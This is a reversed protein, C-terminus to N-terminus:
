IRLGALRRAAEEVRELPPTLAIRVYPLGPNITAARGDRVVECEESIIRGPTVVIGIEPRLLEAALRDGDWGEPARQWLYFTAEPRRVELGRESLAALMVDAKARYLQRMNEVHRDDALAAAAAEQVVWPTGSDINTKLRKYIAIIRPDGAVFGARYGTMNSRKSLSYFVVVGRREVELISPPREGFHIDIYCGEDAAVIIGRRRAWATLGRYYERDAVAGTPSNPYNIWIVKAREAVEDPIAEYDVLFRNEELLPVFHPVGEAFIAGARMPPYAPSPVIVVDGPNIFGEAFNFIAEKSGISSCVETAPDLEVGFGRRMYEAAAARLREGGSYDPYGSAAHREGSATLRATIFEPTPESPDGVGFDIADIGKARLERVKDDIAKFAYPPLRDLRAAASVDSM